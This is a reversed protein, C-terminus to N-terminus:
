RWRWAAKEGIKFVFSGRGITDLARQTVEAVTDGLITTGDPFIAVYRGYHTAEFPQGYRAYLADAQEQLPNSVTSM